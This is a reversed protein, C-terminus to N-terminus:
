RCEKGVRREESRNIPQTASAPCANAARTAPRIPSALCKKIKDHRLQPWTTANTQFASLGYCVPITALHARGEVGSRPSREWYHSLPAALRSSRVNERAGAHM